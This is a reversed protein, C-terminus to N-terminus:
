IFERRNFSLEVELEAIIGCFVKFIELVFCGFYTFPYLVGLVSAALFNIVVLLPRAAQCLIMNLFLYYGMIRDSFHIGYALEISIPLRICILYEM